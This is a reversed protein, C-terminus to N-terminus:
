GTSNKVFGDIFDLCAEITPHSRLTLVRGSLFISTFFRTHPEDAIDWGQRTTDIHQVGIYAKVRGDNYLGLRRSMGWSVLGAHEYEDPSGDWEPHYILNWRIAARLAPREM